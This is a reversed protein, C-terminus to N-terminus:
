ARAYPDGATTWSAIQLADRFGEILADGAARPSAPAHLEDLTVTAARLHARSPADLLLDSEDYRMRYLLVSGHQLVAGERRVQASGCLKRAAVRLDAGQQGTFCVPGSGPGQRAVEADVGLRRLGAILATAIMTYVADVTGADGRPQPLAVAYTLDSGHLLARGGTPRRVVDVDLRSCAAADVDTDPQFRGLSLATPCWTYLRLTSDGRTAADLLDLDRRMQTAGDAAEDIEDVLRWGTV